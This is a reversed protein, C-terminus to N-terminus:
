NENNYKGNSRKYSWEDFYVEEAERRAIVADEKRIYSGLPIKNQDVMIESVWHGNRKDLYVGTITSTNDSRISSNMMNNSQTGVRLQSKRNDYLKHKIHDVVENDKANMIIRHLYIYEKNSNTSAIYGTSLELWCYNKIKDFDELDFYFKKGRNSTYGIGYDKTLDYKNYKKHIMSATERKLCGCSKVSGNRLKEGVVEINKNGCDCDCYYMLRKKKGSRNNSENIVVLRGFRKGIM